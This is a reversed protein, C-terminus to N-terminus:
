WESKHKQREVERRKIEQNAFEKLNLMLDDNLAICVAVGRFRTWRFPADDDIIQCLTWAIMDELSATEKNYSQYM